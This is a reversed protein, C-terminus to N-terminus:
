NGVNEDIMKMIKFHVEKIKDLNKDIEKNEIVFTSLKIKKEESWQNKIRKEVMERDIKDRIIVRKIREELPATVMIIYDCDRYSGSEFLIAAEKIIYPSKQMNKWQLFDEQVYPHIIANLKDLVQKNSFVINSVFSTNYVNNVFAREGLLLKIEERLHSNNAILNKAQVDAIYIPISFYNAFLNAITTKGSGIGGTLGVTPKM